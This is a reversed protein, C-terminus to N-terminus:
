KLLPKIKESLVEYGKPNLHLKDDEFHDAKLQGSSDLFLPAIDVFTLQANTKCYSELLANAKKQDAMQKDRSASHKIGLLIIKTKPNDKHIFEVFAQFDEAVQEPTRKKNIDNDGSYFVITKPKYPLLIRPAFHVADRTQSGGFGCNEYPMGPFNKALNWRRITSSGTFFVAETSPPKEKFRKEIAVIDKEYEEVRKSDADQFSTLILMCFSFRLITFM